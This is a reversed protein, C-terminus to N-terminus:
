AVNYWLVKLNDKWSNNELVNRRVTSWKKSNLRNKKKKKLEQTKSLWGCGKTGLLWFPSFLRIIQMKSKVKLFTLIKVNSTCPLTRNRAIVKKFFINGIYAAIERRSVAFM